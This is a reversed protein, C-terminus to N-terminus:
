EATTADASTEAPPEDGATPEVLRAISAQAVRIDTDEAIELLVTGGGEVETITGYIGGMTVVEDGAKLQAVMQQHQRAVRKQPVMVLFYILVIFVLPLLLVGLGNM